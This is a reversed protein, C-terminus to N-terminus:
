SRVDICFMGSSSGCLKCSKERRVKLLPEGDGLSQLGAFVLQREAAVRLIVLYPKAVGVFGTGSSSILPPAVGAELFPTDSPQPGTPARGACPGAAM